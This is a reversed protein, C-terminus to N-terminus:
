VLKIFNRLSMGELFNDYKVTLKIQHRRKQRNWGDSEQVPTQEM